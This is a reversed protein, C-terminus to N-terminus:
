CRICHYNGESIIIHTWLKIGIISAAIKILETFNMDEESPLLEGSPHNHCLVIKTCKLSVPYSLVDVPKLINRNSIGITVLEIFEIDNRDNLGITWCYEKKRHHRNQFCLIKQMIRAIDAISNVHKDEKSVSVKM